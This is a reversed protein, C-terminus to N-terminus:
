RTSATHEAWPTKKVGSRPRKHFTGLTWSPISDVIQNYTGPMMTYKGYARDLPNEKRWENNPYTYLVNGKTQVYPVNDLTKSGLVLYVPLDALINTSTASKYPDAQRFRQLLGCEAIQDGGALRIIEHVPSAVGCMAQIAQRDIAVRTTDGYIEGALERARGHVQDVLTDLGTIREEVTTTVSQCRSCEPAAAPIQIPPGPLRRVPEPKKGGTNERIRSLVRAVGAARAEAARLAEIHGTLEQLCQTCQQKKKRGMCDM